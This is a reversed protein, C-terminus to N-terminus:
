FNVQWDAGELIGQLDPPIEQMQVSPAGNLYRLYEAVQINIGDLYQRSNKNYSSTTIQPHLSYDPGFHSLYENQPLENALDV